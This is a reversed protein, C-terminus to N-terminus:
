EEENKQLAAIMADCVSEWDAVIGYDAHAFIPSLRNSNIAVVTKAGDMGATHQAAGSIGFAFYWEPRVIQGTQGIQCDYAAYGADVAGRSAGLAGGLLATLRKLKCFGAKGGVGKGGAVIIKAEQLSQASEAPVANLKQLYTAPVALKPRRISGKTGGEPPPPFIGPRISAMQPRHVRCLIDALVNGGLAPRTQLLLGDATQGLATCDATLGTGLRAAVWASLFRGRVTAPFLAGDADLGRLAEAVREAQACDDELLGVLVAESAGAAFCRPCSEEAECLAVVRGSFARAGAIM